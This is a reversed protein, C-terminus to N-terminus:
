FDRHSLMEYVIWLLPALWFGWLWLLFRLIKAFLVLVIQLVVMSKITNWWKLLGANMLLLLWKKLKDFFVDGGEWVYWAMSLYRNKKQSFRTTAKLENEKRKKKKAKDDSETWDMHKSMNNAKPHRKNVSYKVWAQRFTWLSRHTNGTRM